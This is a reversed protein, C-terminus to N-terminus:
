DARGTTVAKCFVRYGIGVAIVGLLVTVSFEVIWRMHTSLILIFATIAVFNNLSHMVMTLYTSETKYRAFGLLVGLFFIKIVSRAGYNLHM